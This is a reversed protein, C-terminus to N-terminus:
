EKHASISNPSSLRVDRFNTTPLLYGLVAMVVVFVIGELGGLLMDTMMSCMSIATACLVWYRQTGTFFFPIGMWFIIFLILAVIGLDMCVGLYQSHPSFHRDIYGDWGYQQYRHVLYDTANGAGFGHAIYDKPQELAVHWIAMRPEFAPSVPNNENVSIMERISLGGNRPHVLMGLVSGLVIVIVAVGIGLGKVWNKKGQLVSWGITIIAIVILYIWAIRSGTMFIALLLVIGIVITPLKGIKPYVIALCPFLMCLLSSYHMRHKINLLLESMHWWDVDVINHISHKDFAYLHNIVWYHTFMYVGISTICTISLVKFSKRWDYNDNLGYVCIFPITLLSAYRLLLNLAAQTNDAWLLSLSNWLLWVLIGCSLYVLGRHRLTPKNSIYRFELLWTFIWAYWFFKIFPLTYPLSALLGLFAMFNIKEIISKYKEM